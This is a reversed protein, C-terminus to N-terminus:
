SVALIIKGINENAEMRRHAEAVQEWPVTFVRRQGDQAEQRRLSEITQALLTRETWATGYLVTTANTSAAM